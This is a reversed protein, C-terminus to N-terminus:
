EDGHKLQAEEVLDRPNIKSDESKWCVENIYPPQYKQMEEESLVLIGFSAGEGDSCYVAEETTISQPNDLMKRLLARGSENTIIAQAGHWCPPSYLQIIPDPERLIDGLRKRLEEEPIPKGSFMDEHLAKLEKSNLSNRTWMETKLPLGYNRTHTGYNVKYAEKLEELTRYGYDTLDQVVRGERVHIAAEAEHFNFSNDIVFWVKNDDTAKNKLAESRKGRTKTTNGTETNDIDADIGNEEMFDRLKDELRENQEGTLQTLPNILIMKLEGKATRQNDPIDVM